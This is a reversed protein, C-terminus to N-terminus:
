KVDVYKGDKIVCVVPTKSVEGKENWKMGSGTLGDYSFDGTFQGIM